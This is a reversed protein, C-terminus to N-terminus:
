INTLKKILDEIDKETNVLSYIGNDRRWLKQGTRLDGHLMIWKRHKYNTDFYVGVGAFHHLACIWAQLPNCDPFFDVATSLKGIVYHRSTQEGYKRALSGKTKSPYIPYGLDSIYDDLIRFVRLDTLNIEEESPFESAKFHDIKAWDM